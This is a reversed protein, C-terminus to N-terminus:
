RGHTAETTYGIQNNIIFHVSGGVTFHPVDALALTEHVVGQVSVVRLAGVALHFSCTAHM